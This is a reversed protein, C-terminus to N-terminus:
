KIIAEIPLSALGPSDGPLSFPYNGLGLSQM